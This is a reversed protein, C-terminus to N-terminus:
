RFSGRGARGLGTDEANLHGKGSLGEQGGRRFVTEEFEPVEAQQTTKLASKVM